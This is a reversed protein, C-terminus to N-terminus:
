GTRKLYYVGGGMKSGRQSWGRWRVEGSEAVHWAEGDDGRSKEGGACELGGPM